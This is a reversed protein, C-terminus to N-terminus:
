GKDLIPPPGADEPIPPGDPLKQLYNCSVFQIDDWLYGQAEFTPIDKIWRKQGAEFAYIHPSGNCKLLLHIPLGEEFELLFEDSVEHVQSWRYGYREFAELTTIWRRQNNQLVYIEEGSGKLVLGDRIVLAASDPMARALSTGYRNLPINILILLTVMIVALRALMRELHVSPLPEAPGPESELPPSWYETPPQSVMSPPELLEAPFEEETVAVEPLDAPGEDAEPASEVPAASGPKAEPEAAAAAVAPDGERQKQREQLADLLLDLIQDSIASEKEGM